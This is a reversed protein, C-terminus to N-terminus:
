HFRKLANFKDMAQGSDISSKALEVGDKISSVKNAAYLGCAANLVVIDRKPSHKGQLIELIIVANDLADRGLIDERKAAPMGFDQACVQYTKIQGDILEAIFTKGCISAEDLGDESYMVLAHVSGLKKLVDAVPILWKKDYVGIIQHRAFAPNSLPGMLNFITKTGIAKRAPMAHKMAPHFNPAFLFVIGIQELCRCADIASININIGLAELVDASGSKSSVSRNGHKAVKVGCASVVISAATSINFTGSADGGTGCTDLIIDDGTKVRCVYSRMVDVAASLEEVTEGKDRLSSLFLVIDETKVQGSMIQRMAELMQKFDLDKKSKLLEIAQDIM